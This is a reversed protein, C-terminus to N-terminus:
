CHSSIFSGFSQSILVILSPFWLAHTYPAFVAANAVPPGAVRVIHTHAHTRASTKPWHALVLSDGDTSHLLVCVGM